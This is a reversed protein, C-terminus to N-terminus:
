RRRCIGPCVNSMRCKKVFFGIGHDLHVVYDGPKLSSLDGSIERRRSNDKYIIKKLPVDPDSNKKNTETINEIINGNFGIRFANTSNIPFVTIYGGIQSFEGPLEVTQYKQYGFDTLKRLLESLMIKQGTELYLTNKQWFGGVAKEIRTLNRDFWLLGKELILPTIAIIMIRDTSRNM